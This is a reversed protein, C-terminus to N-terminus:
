LVWPPEHVHPANPPSAGMRCMPPTQLHTTHQPHPPVHPPLPLLLHNISPRLHPHSIPCRQKAISKLCASGTTHMLWRLVITSNLSWQPNELAPSKMRSITQRVMLKLSAFSNTSNTSQMEWVTTHVLILRSSHGFKLLYLGALPKHVQFHWIVDAYLLSYTDDMWSITSMGLACPMFHSGQQNTLLIVPICEYIWIENGAAYM